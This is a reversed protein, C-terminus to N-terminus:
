PSGAVRDCLQALARATVHVSFSEEVQRQIEGLRDKLYRRRIGTAIEDRLAAALADRDGVPYLFKEAWEAFLSEAMSRHPPIDSVIPPCGCYAAEYPTMSFGEYDSACVYVTFGGYPPPVEPGEVVRVADSRFGPIAMEQEILQMQAADQGPQFVQSPVLTLRLDALRDLGALRFACVVDPFRKRRVLRGVAAVVPRESPSARSTPLQAGMPLYGTEFGDQRLQEAVFCSSALLRVSQRETLHRLETTHQPWYDQVNNFLPIGSSACWTALARSLDPRVEIHLNIGVVCAADSHEEQLIRVLNGAAGIGEYHLYCVDTSASIAPFLRLVESVMVTVGTVSALPFHHVLLLRKRM